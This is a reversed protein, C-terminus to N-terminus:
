KNKKLWKKFNKKFICPYKKYLKINQSNAFHSCNNFWNKYEKDGPECFENFFGILNIGYFEYDLQKYEIRISVKLKQLEIKNYLEELNKM